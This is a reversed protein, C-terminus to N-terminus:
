RQWRPKESAKFNSIPKLLETVDVTDSIVSLIEDMSKYAMPCEDVTDDTLTTSYIGNMEKKMENLTFIEKAQKRGYLRGAGHPASFNWEANGKGSCILMGDRM